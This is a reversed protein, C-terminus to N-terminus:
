RAAVPGTSTVYEVASVEVYDQQATVRELRRLSQLRDVDVELLSRKAELQELRDSLEKVQLGRTAVTSTLTLYSFGGVVIVAGLVIRLGLESIRLRKWLPLQNKPIEKKQYVM